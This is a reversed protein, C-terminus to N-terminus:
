QKDAKLYIEMSSVNITKGEREFSDTGITIRTSINYGDETLLRKAIEATNVLTFISKGRAKLLFENKGTGVLTRIKYAYSASIKYGILMIEIAM